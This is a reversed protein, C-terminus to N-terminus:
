ICILFWGVHSFSSLHLELHELIKINFLMPIKVNEVKSKIIYYDDFILNHIKKCPCAELILAYQFVPYGLM